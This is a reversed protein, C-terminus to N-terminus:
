FMELQHHRSPPRKDRLHRYVTTEDWGLKLAIQATTWGRSAYLRVRWPKCAPISLQVGRHAQVMAAANKTGILMALKTAAELSRPILVRSGGYTEILMLAKEEGILSTLYEIEAPTRPPAIQRTRKM